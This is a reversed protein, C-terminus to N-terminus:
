AMIQVNLRYFTGAMRARAEGHWTTGRGQSATLCTRAGRPHYVIWFGDAVMKAQAKLNGTCVLTKSSFASLNGNTPCKLQLRLIDWYLPGTM